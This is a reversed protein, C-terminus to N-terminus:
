ESESTYTLTHQKRLAIFAIRVKKSKQTKCSLIHRHLLDERGVFLGTLLEVTFGYGFHEFLYLHPELQCLVHVSM